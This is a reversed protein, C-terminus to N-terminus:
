NNKWFGRTFIILVTFLELRGALMDFILVSKSVDCLTTFSGDVGTVGCGLGINSMASLSAFIADFAPMGFLTLIAGSVTVLMAYTSLFAVAKAYVDDSVVKDNIRILKVTNPHM